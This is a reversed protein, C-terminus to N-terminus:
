RPNDRGHNLLLQPFPVKAKVRQHGSQVTVHLLFPNTGPITEWMSDFGFSRERLENKVMASVVGVVIGTTSTGLTRLRCCDGEGGHRSETQVESQRLLPLVLSM